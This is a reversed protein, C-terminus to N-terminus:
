DDNQDKKCSQDPTCCSENSACCRQGVCRFFRYVFVVLWVGIFLDIFGWVFGILGGVFSADYGLYVSGFLQVMPLGYGFGACVWALFTLSLAWVVALSLALIMPCVKNNQKGM